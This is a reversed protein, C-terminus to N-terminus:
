SNRRKQGEKVKGERRDKRKVTGEKRDKRLPGMGEKEGKQVTGEKRDM